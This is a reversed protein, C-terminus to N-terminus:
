LSSSCNLLHPITVKRQITHSNRHMRLSKKFNIPRSPFPVFIEPTPEACIMCHLYLFTIPGTSTFVIWIVNLM